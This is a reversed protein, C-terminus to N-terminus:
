ASCTIKIGDEYTTLGGHRWWRGEFVSVMGARGSLRDMVKELREVVEGDRDGHSLKDVEIRYSSDTRTTVVTYGGVFYVQGGANDSQGPGSIEEPDIQLEEAIIGKMEQPSLPRRIDARYYALMRDLCGLAGDDGAESLSIVLPLDLHSFEKRIYAWAKAPNDVGANSIVSLARPSIKTVKTM